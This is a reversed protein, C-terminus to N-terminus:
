EKIINVPRTEHIYEAVKVGMSEALEDVEDSYMGKSLVGLFIADTQLIYLRAASSGSQQAGQKLLQDHYQWEQGPPQFLPDIFLTKGEIEAIQQTSVGENVESTEEKANNIHNGTVIKKFGHTDILAALESKKAIFDPRAKPALAEEKKELSEQEKLVAMMMTSGVLRIREHGITYESNQLDNNLQANTGNFVLTIVYLEGYKAGLQSKVNGVTIGTEDDYDIDNTVQQVAGNLKVLATKLKWVAPKLQATAGSGGNSSPITQKARSGNQQQGLRAPPGPAFKGQLPEEEGVRQATGFLDDFQKRQAAQRPSNHIMGALRGGQPSAVAAGGGQKAAPQHQAQEHQPDAKQM